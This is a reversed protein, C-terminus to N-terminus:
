WFNEGCDILQYFMFGYVFDFDLDEASDQDRWMSM